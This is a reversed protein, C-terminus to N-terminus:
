AFEFVDTLLAQIIGALCKFFQFTPGVGVNNMGIVTRAHHASPFPRDFGPMGNSIVSLVTDTTGIAYVPPELNASEGHPVRFSADDAPVAQMRINFVPLAGLFGQTRAFQIKAQDNIANGPEHSGRIRRTLGLQEVALEHFIKALRSLFQLIPGGAVDDMRIVVSAQHGCMYIRDFGPVGIVDLDPDAAGIAYVAPKLNAVMGQSVRFAMNDAPVDQKSINIVPFTSLFGQTRAFDIQTQDDMANRPEHTGHTRCALDFKEVALNQFIEALRSLRQLTPCGAVGNMGVVKRTDDSGEPIGDFGPM